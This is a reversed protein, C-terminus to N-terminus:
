KKNTQKNLPYMYWCCFCCCYYCECRDDNCTIINHRTLWVMPLLSMYYWLFSFIFRDWYLFYARLFFCFKLANCLCKQICRSVLIEIWFLLSLLFFPKSNKLSNAETKKKKRKRKKNKGYVPKEKVMIKYKEMTENVYSRKERAKIYAYIKSFKM